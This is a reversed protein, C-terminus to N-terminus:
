STLISPNTEPKNILKYRDKTQQNVGLKNILDFRDKDQKSIRLKEKNSHTHKIQSLLVCPTILITTKSSRKYRWIFNIRWTQNTKFTLSDETQPSNTWPSWLIFYKKRECIFIAWRYARSSQPISSSEDMSKAGEVGNKM